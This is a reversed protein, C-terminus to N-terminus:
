GNPLEQASKKGESLQASLSSTPTVKVPPRRWFPCMPSSRSTRRWLSCFCSRTPAMGSTNGPLEDSQAFSELEVGLDKALNMGANLLELTQECTEAFVWIGAM